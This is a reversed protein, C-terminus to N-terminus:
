WVEGAPQNKAPYSRRSRLLLPVAIAVALGTALLSGALGPKSTMLFVVCLALLTKAQVVPLLRSGRLRQHTVAPSHQNSSAADGQIVRLRRGSFASLAGLVVLAALSMVIWGQSWVDMKAALYFGTPLILLTAALNLALAVRFAGAGTDSLQADWRASALQGFEVLATWELALAAFLALSGLVHLFLAVSYLSM